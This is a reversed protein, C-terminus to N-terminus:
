GFLFEHLQMRAHLYLTAFFLLPVRSDVMDLLM